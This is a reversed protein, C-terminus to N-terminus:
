QNLEAIEAARLRSAADEDTVVIYDYDGDGEAYDDADEESIVGNQLLDEAEPSYGLPCSWCFCGGIHKTGEDYIETQEPHRCNYGNNFSIGDTLYANHFYGCFNAFQNIEMIIPKEM